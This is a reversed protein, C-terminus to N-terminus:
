YNLKKKKKNTKKKQTNIVNMTTNHKKKKIKTTRAEFAEAFNVWDVRVVKGFVTIL